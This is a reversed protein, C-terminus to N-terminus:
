GGPAEAKGFSPHVEVAGNHIRVATGEKVMKGCARELHTVLVGGRRRYETGRNTEASPRGEKASHTLRVGRLFRPVHWEAHHCTLVKGRLHTRDAEVLGQEKVYRWVLPRLVLINGKHGSQRAVPSMM